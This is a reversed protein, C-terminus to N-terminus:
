DLAFSELIRDAEAQVAEPLVKDEMRRRNSRLFIAFALDGRLIDRADDYHVEHELGNYVVATREIEEGIFVIAGKPIREGPAGAADYSIIIDEGARKFHIRLVIALEHYTLSVLNPDNAWKVVEWREEPYRFSFGYDPNHYTAWTSVDAPSPTDYLAGAEPTLDLDELAKTPPYFSLGDLLCRGADDLAERAYLLRFLRGEVPLYIATNAVEGPVPSLMVGGIGDVTVAAREVPFDLPDLQEDILRELQDPTEQYLWTVQFLLTRDPRALVVGYESGLYQPEIILHDAPYDLEIGLVDNRYTEVAPPCPEPLAEVLPPAATTEAPSTATPGPTTQLQAATPSIAPPAATTAPAQTSEQAADTGCGSLLLAVVAVLVLLRKM